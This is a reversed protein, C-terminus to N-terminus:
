TQSNDVRPAVSIRERVTLPASPRTLLLRGIDRSSAREAMGDHRWQGLLALM